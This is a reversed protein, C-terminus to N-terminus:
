ATEKLQWPWWSAKSERPPRAQSYGHAATSELEAIHNECLVIEHGGSSLGHGPRDCDLWCIDVTERSWGLDAFRRNLAM